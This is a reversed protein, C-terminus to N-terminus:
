KVIKKKKIKKNESKKKLVRSYKRDVKIYIKSHVILMNCYLTLEKLYLDIMKWSRLCKWFEHVDKLSTFIKDFKHVYKINTFKKPNMFIKEFECFFIM